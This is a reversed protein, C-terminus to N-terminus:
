LLRKKKQSRILTCTAAALLWCGAACFPVREGHAIRPPREGRPGLLGGTRRQDIRPDNRTAWVHTSPADVHRGGTPGPRTGPHAARTPGGGHLSRMMAAAAAAKGQGVVVRRGTGDRAVREEHPLSPRSGARGSATRDRRSPPSAAGPRRLGWARATVDRPAHPHHAGPAQAASAHLLTLLSRRSVM